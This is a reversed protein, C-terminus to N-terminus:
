MDSPIATRRGGNVVACRRYSLSCGSDRPEIFKTSISLTVVSCSSSYAHARAQQYACTEATEDFAQDHVAHQLQMQFGSIESFSGRLGGLGQVAFMMSQAIYTLCVLKVLSRFQNNTM